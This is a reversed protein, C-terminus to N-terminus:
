SCRSTPRAARLGLLLADDDAPLAADGARRAGRRGQRRHHGALALARRERPRSRVPPGVAGRRVGRPRQRRGRAIEKLVFPHCRIAGQGFIILSRTLINAGEVTIAIPVTSTARQGLYNNPGMMIGKGGHVDM